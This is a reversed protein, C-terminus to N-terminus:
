FHFLSFFKVKIYKMHAKVSRWLYMSYFIKRADKRLEIDIGFRDKLILRETALSTWRHLIVNNKANTTHVVEVWSPQKKINIGIVACQSHRYVNGHSGYGYVTKLRSNGHYMEILTIFHNNKYKVHNAINLEEFYQLGYHMTIFTDQEVVHTNQAVQEMFDFSLADDNDLYTTTVVCGTKNMNHAVLDQLVANQFVRVFHVGVVSPVEIPSFQPCVDSYKRYRQKYSDPTGEDFLVIWTFDKFSQKLISPLCYKEFLEFRKSLWQDSRTSCQNRDTKWLKLNFRTLIYHRIM